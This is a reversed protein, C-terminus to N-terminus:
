PRYSNIKSVIFNADAFTRVGKVIIYDTRPNLNVYDRYTGPIHIEPKSGKIGGLVDDGHWQIAIEFIAMKHDIASAGSKHFLEERLDVGAKMTERKVSDTETVFGLRKIAGSKDAYVKAALPFMNIPADLVLGTVKGSLLRNSYAKLDTNSKDMQKSTQVVTTDRMIDARMELLGAERNLYLTDFTQRAVSKVAVIKDADPFQERLVDNFNESGIDQSITFVRKRGLVVGCGFKDRFVRIPKLEGDDQNLADEDLYLPYARAIESDSVKLSSIASEVLEVFGDPIIHYSVAKLDCAQQMVLAAILRVKLEPKQNIGAKVVAKLESWSRASILDLSRLIQQVSHLSLYNELNDVLRETTVEQLSSPQALDTEVKRFEAWVESAPYKELQRLTEALEADLGASVPLNAESSIVLNKGDTTMELAEDYHVYDDLGHFIKVFALQSLLCPFWHVFYM